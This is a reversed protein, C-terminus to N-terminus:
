SVCTLFARDSVLAFKRLDCRDEEYTCSQVFEESSARLVGMTDEGYELALNWFRNDDPLKELNKLQTLKRNFGSPQLVVEQNLRFM